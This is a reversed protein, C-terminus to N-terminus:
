RARGAGTVIPRGSGALAGETASPMSSATLKAKDPSAEPRTVAGMALAGIYAEPKRKGPWVSNMASSVASAGKSPGTTGGTPFIGVLDSLNGFADVEPEVFDAATVGAMFEELSPDDGMRKDLCVFHQMVPCRDKLQQVEDAKSSHYVLWKCRVYNIYGANADIANLVDVVDAIKVKAHRLFWKILFTKVSM